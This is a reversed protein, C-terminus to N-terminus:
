ALDEISYIDHHPPPSILGVGPTSHRVKAIWPYVKQGPLQGGEGPKAGQAMKIQLERANVLYESTVGFRGSAVQKIASSRSDGNADLVYRAPDEGGEGTNSKGGLRNMAIAMTEHAEKSVSGYSMAGSKFRRVISDVSEVEELPVTQEAFRIKFLGRLTCLNKARDNVLASYQKFVQYNGTRCALQLKHVTDPSFLHLEGERRWQYSGGADLTQGNVTRDPYAHAHRSLVEAAIIDLGIGGVRSATWTFYRDIVKQGIGVAEFIQAGCYSQATSIGMKSMVKLVGKNIAKIYNKVATAHDTDRLLGQRVLDDLTEFALYPNVAGAGYGILLAFHHVERPEGSEVILGVRTRTGERILHHHVGATALLAPIAAHERDAGRDSLIIFDHGSAIAESAQRCLDELARPLADVGGAVPFLMPLTISKFRGAMLPRSGGKRYTGDLQRLKELEENKLIPSKLKIQRCSVANPALLNGEGGITTDMTMIIDERIGDVPPNTVQAFLQRFYNYLLQPRRSLVALAADNGMSGVAENGEAAMPAMLIRVDEATYGFAHQRELITKRDSMFENPSEALDELAVQQQKLWKAYPKATAIEFKLEEDDVIRGQHLDVLFMRGPQLRGKTKINEPPIDLVGVESALVILGDKTEYYRSPRLGNRDLVAGIRMGDTFAISAPGDWPEMLCSHYEYFAKKEASMTAHATWPEPIMMMVAHPLSRGALTLLELTNDFMGSDSGEADIIPMLKRLDDGFLDSAFLSQRAHMWNINGRLTNIEGNHALFRYPHARAWNPFTNTSFRQHVLALASEMEPDNLDAFYDSLQAATLMGKYILTRASLSPVYFMGRERISSQRVANEASRRVVYLKREFALDEGQRKPRAPLGKRGVFLHRMFPETARASPGIPRNNCPVDRWGLFELGEEVICKEFIAECARRSKANAPLFVLGIGYEGAAPLTIGAVEASKVFFRHPMQLLIGAGDGTNKECGCAGRHELNVLIRIAKRVIDHSPRNKLDVVFGVGCADHEHAPDYLGQAGPLSPHAM